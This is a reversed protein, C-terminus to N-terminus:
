AVLKSQRMFDTIKILEDPSIGKTFINENNEHGMRVEIDKGKSFIISLRDTPDNPYFMVRVGGDMEPTIDFDQFNQQLTIEITSLFEESKKFLDEYYTINSGVILRAKSLEEQLYKFM